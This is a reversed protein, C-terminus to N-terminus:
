GLAVGQTYGRRVMAAVIGPQGSLPVFRAFAPCNLRKKRTSGRGFIATKLKNEAQKGRQLAARNLFHTGCGMGREGRDEGCAHFRLWVASDVGVSAGGGSRCQWLAPLIGAIRFGRRHVGGCCDVKLEGGEIARDPVAQGTSVPLSEREDVAENVGNDLGAGSM